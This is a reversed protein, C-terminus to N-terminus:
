SSSLTDRGRCQRMLLGAALEPLPLHPPLKPLTEGRQQLSAGQEFVLLSPLPQCCVALPLICRPALRPLTAALPEPHASVKAKESPKLPKLYGLLQAVLYHIKYTSQHSSAENEKSDQVVLLNALTHLYTASLGDSYITSLPTYLGSLEAFKNLIPGFNNFFKM